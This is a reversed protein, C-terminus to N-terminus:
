KPLIAPSIFDQINIYLMLFILLGFGVLNILNEYQAPIRRRIVIEPLTFLIRGGDLAPFPFLNILGLSITIDTFFQLINVGAPVGPTPESTRAQEYIDFM